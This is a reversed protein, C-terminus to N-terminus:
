GEQGDHIRHTGFIFKGQIGITRYNMTYAFAIM